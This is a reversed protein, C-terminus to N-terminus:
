RRRRRRRRRRRTNNNSNHQNFRSSHRRNVRNVISTTISQHLRHRQVQLPLRHAAALAVRLLAVAVVTVVAAAAAAVVTLSGPSGLPRCKLRVIRILSCRFASDKTGVRKMITMKKRKKKKRWLAGM